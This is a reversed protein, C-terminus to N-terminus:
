RFIKPAKKEKEKKGKKTKERFRLSVEIEHHNLILTQNIELLFVKLYNEYYNATIQVSNHGQPSFFLEPIM